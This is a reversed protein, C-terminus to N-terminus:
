ATEEEKDWDKIFYKEMIPILERNLERLPEIFKSLETPYAYNNQREANQIARILSYEFEELQEKKTYKRQRRLNAM